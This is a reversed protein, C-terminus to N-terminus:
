SADVRVGVYAEFSEGPALVRLGTDAGGAALEAANPVCTYPEICVAERHPPNYVVCERFVGDFEITVTVDSSPDVIRCRCLDGDFELGTFVDDFQMEGFALGARYAQPAEVEPQKGTPLMHALEWRRDVPLQVRCQDAEAGGLPVCFYPHTGLGCPLPKTDPNEIKYGMRLENGVVEYTATIRFDAPWRHLLAPEDVSAQFQGVIRHGTQELVRWPRAIVYGHIANGLGDDGELPIERGEWQLSRGRIRGPYPFLLPIGSGSARKEGSEFGDEAWLVPVVSGDCTVRFDFCNFGYDALLRAEAGSAEDRLVITDM